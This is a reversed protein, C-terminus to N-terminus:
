ECLQLKYYIITVYQLFVNRSFGVHFEFCKMCPWLRSYQGVISVKVVVLLCDNSIAPHEVGTVNTGRVQLKVGSTDNSFLNFCEIVVLIDKTTVLAGGCLYRDGRFFLVFNNHSTPPQHLIKYYRISTPELM